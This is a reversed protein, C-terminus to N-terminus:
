GILERYNNRSIIKTEADYSKTFNDPFRVKRKPNWKFEYAYFSGNIEEVYDIEQQRNTRWFYTNVILRSYHIRKVRESMLFNEWLQGADNRVSLAQLQGIISNRIGNDYFYIKRNTKIENRLNRSLPNLRFVVFSKELVDIYKDITKPDIGVIESLERLSVENGVQYALAQLLKKIGLPKKLNSYMLIDKYLYSDTLESLVETSNTPNNLVDPYFGLVLRNELDQESKLYGVHNQWENWSIPWLKYTWKRGTLPENTHQTLEFSSSGSMILQVHKFQDAIIKATIGIEHVRQAEHILVISNEGIINEIEVSNPRDLLQLVTPDDANLMLVNENNQKIIKNLLTTKGAQRPGLLIIVKGSHIKGNIVQELERLIM